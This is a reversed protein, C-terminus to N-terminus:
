EFEEKILLACIQTIGADKDSVEDKSVVYANKGAISIYAEINPDSKKEIRYEEGSLGKAIRYDKLLTNLTSADKSFAALLLESRIKYEPESPSWGGPYFFEGRSVGRELWTPYLYNLKRLELYAKSVKDASGACAALKAGKINKSAIYPATSTAPAVVAYTDDDLKDVLVLQGKNINVIKGRNAEIAYYDPEPNEMVHLEVGINHCTDHVKDVLSAVVIRRELSNM